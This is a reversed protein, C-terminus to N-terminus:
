AVPVGGIGPAIAEAFADCWDRYGTENPHFDDAAFKGKWPPGSHAWVDAIRVDRRPAEDRIVANLRQARWRGLGRPLTAIVAGAPLGALLVRLADPVPRFWFSLLDNAGAACTVLEAEDALARLPPLQEAVVDRVRSGTRSLNM